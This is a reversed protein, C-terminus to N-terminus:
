EGKNLIIQIISTVDVVDIRGDGNVDASVFDFKAPTQGLVHSIVSTVDVVDVRKDGNVDGSLVGEGRLYTLQLTPSDAPTDWLLAYVDTSAARAGFTTRNGTEETTKRCDIKLGDVDYLDLQGSGSLVFVISDGKEATVKFGQLQGTTPATFAMPVATTLSLFTPRVPVVYDFEESQVGATPRGTDDFAQIGFTVHDPCNVVQEKIDFTYDKTVANPVVDKVEIVVEKLTLQKQAEVDVHVRPGHNFWYEYSVIGTPSPEPLSPVVFHKLVPSLYIGRSDIARYAFSHVGPSLSAVDFDLAVTGNVHELTQRHDFDYDLWYEMGVIRNDDHTPAPLSPIVFHKLVPSLYIGRGDVARYAVSHVGPSLSAVDLDLAVTGNVHELTQRHDFDYDLWYEMGVIRNDDHTPAPLSPIVFHKVFPAGWRDESDGFRLGISHVGRALSSIDLQRQFLGDGALAVSQRHDFDYDFWYECTQMTASQAMLRNGTATALMALLLIITKKM